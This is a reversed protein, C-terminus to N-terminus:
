QDAKSLYPGMVNPPTMRELSLRVCIHEAKQQQVSASCDLRRLSQRVNSLILMSLM